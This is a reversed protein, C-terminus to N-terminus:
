RHKELNGLLQHVVKELDEYNEQSPPPDIGPTGIVVNAILRSKWGFFEELDRKGPQYDYKEDCIFVLAIPKDTLPWEIPLGQARQLFAYMIAPLRRGYAPCGVILADAHAFTHYADYVNDSAPCNQRRLCEYNCQTGCLVIRLESLGIEKTEVQKKSAVNLAHRILHATNGDKRPSGIFGVLLTKGRKTM